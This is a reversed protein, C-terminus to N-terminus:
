EEKKLLKVRRKQKSGITTIVDYITSSDGIVDLCIYHIYPTLSHFILAKNIIHKM